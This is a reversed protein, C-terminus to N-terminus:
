KGCIAKETRFEEVEGKIKLRIAEQMAKVYKQDKAPIYKKIRALAKEKQGDRYKHISGYGYFFEMALMHDCNMMYSELRSYDDRTCWLLDRIEDQIKKPLKVRKLCLEARDNTGGWGPINYDHHIPKDFATLIVDMWANGREYEERNKKQRPTEKYEKM